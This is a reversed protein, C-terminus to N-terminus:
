LPLSVQETVRQHLDIGPVNEYRANLKERLNFLRKSATDVLQAYTAIRLKGNAWNQQSQLKGNISEGVVFATIYPNGTLAGCDLLEEVYAVAQDREKRSIQFGGRKLEIILIKETACLGTDGQFGDVGTVSLTSDASIVLDPRKKSNEFQDPSVTTKFLSKVVTQLQKNSTYEPSDFEPGFLWRAETILPHLVTLEDVSSDSALKSIAEIVSIRRDIEDLVSLADKITWQDLLRNLGEIDDDSLSHIKNLLEKGSRTKELHIVTKVALSIEDPKATPNEETIANIAEQVEYQGLPSLKEIDPKFQAKIKDRTEGVSERAIKNQMENAYNGVSEFIPKLEDAQKFGSWDELIFEALDETKVVISYRRAFTTRGDVIATRGLIWSPEGVLKRAQWFAIGQYLTSRATKQSDILMFQLRVNGVTTETVDVLGKHDELPVTKGNIRVEFSPDHLFRASLVELIREQSPLRRLVQVKLETGYGEEESALESKIAFPETQDLTTIIFTNKISDRKTIVTYEDNFCLLGHRGVGNRGYATRHGNRGPPFQVEGSQHKLRSYGLKMWRSYFQEYTLGTGDDKITLEEGHKEPIFIDVRNAGADWANAVLETLAIDPNTALTGLTRVLYGDEFLSGQIVASKKM